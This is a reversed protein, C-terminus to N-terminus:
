PQDNLQSNYEQIRVPMSDPLHIRRYTNIFARIGATFYIDYWEFLPSIEVSEDTVRVGNDNNVFNGALTDLDVTLTKEKFLKTPFKPGGRSALSLALVVRPDNTRKLIEDILCALCTTKGAVRISVSGFFNITPDYVSNVPYVKLVQHLLTAHYANLYFAVGNDKSVAIADVVKDLAAMAEDDAQWAAYRVGKSTVYKELLQSYDGWVGEHTAEKQPRLRTDPPFNKISGQRSRVEAVLRTDVSDRADPLAGAHNLVSTEVDSAPMIRLWAPIPLPADSVYPSPEDPPWNAPLEALDFTHTGEALNDKFYVKSGTNLGSRHFFSLQPDTSPGAIVVNGIIDASLVVDGPRGYAHIGHFGPNYILNNAVIVSSGASIAPNRFANSIFLNRLIYVNEIGPGIVLGASHVGGKPHISSALGEGLICDRVVIDHNGQGWIQLNEDVAWNISCNEILINYAPETGDESGDIQIGDRNQPASNTLLAGVRIRINRLIVDHTRIRISDGLVSIGPAPASEGEVTVYPEHFQLKEKLWIEGGVSFRITRPGKKTLAERLSGPGSDNLNTVLIVEGAAGGKTPYEEAALWKVLFLQAIFALLLLHYRNM